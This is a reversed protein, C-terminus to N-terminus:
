ETIGPDSQAITQDKSITATDSKTIPLIILEQLWRALLCSLSWMWCSMAQPRERSTHCATLTFTWKDPHRLVDGISHWNGKRKKKERLITLVSLILKSFSKERLYTIVIALQCYSLSAVISSQLWKQKSVSARFSTASIAVWSCLLRIRSSFKWFSVSSCLSKIPISFKVAGPLTLAIVSLLLYPTSRFPIFLTM